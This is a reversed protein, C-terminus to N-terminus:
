KARGTSILWNALESPFSYTEGQKLEFRNKGFNGSTNQIAVVKTYRETTVKAKISSVEIEEVAEVPAVAKPPITEEVKKPTVSETATKKRRRTPAKKEAM